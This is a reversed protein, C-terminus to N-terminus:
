QQRYFEKRVFIFLALVGVVSLLITGPEPVAMPDSMPEDDPDAMSGPDTFSINTMFSYTFYSFGTLDIWSQWDATAADFEEQFLHEGSLMGHEELWPQMFNPETSFIISVDTPQTNAAFFQLREEVYDFNSYPDPRYDHLLVNDVIVDIQLAEAQTPWGLYTEVQIPDANADALARIQQLQALYETFTAAGNWYELELHYVDFKRSAEAQERNYRDIVAAFFGASEGTAAIRSIGSNRAAELFAALAPSNEAYRPDGDSWGLIQHLDYLLFCNIEHETAYQLLAEESSDDGLIEHFGDVYMCRHQAFAMTPSIVLLCVLYILLACTKRNNRRSIYYKEKTAQFHLKKM